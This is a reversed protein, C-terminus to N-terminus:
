SRSMGLKRYQYPSVSVWKVFARRFNTVESYGLLDSIEQVSLNTTQLYELALQRRVDDLIKQYSTGLAQLKRRLTRGGMSLREAVMDLRPFDGPSSLVLHCVRSVIDEEIEMRDLLRACSEECVRATASDAAALPRQLLAADFRYECWKADFEPECGFARAYDLDADPRAYNLRIVTPNLEDGVLLSILPTIGRFLDEVVYRAVAGGPLLHEIRLVAEDDDVLFVLEFMAGALKHYKVAIQVAQELTASSMMAYGLLGFEAISVRRDDKLWFGTEGAADILNELQRIRQRYTIRSRSDSLLDASIGTGELQRDEPVGLSNAVQILSLVQTVPVAKRDLSYSHFQGAPPRPIQRSETKMESGSDCAFVACPSKM